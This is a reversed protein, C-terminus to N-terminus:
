DLHAEDLAQHQKELLRLAELEMRWDTFEPPEVLELAHLRREFEASSMDYTEEFATLRARTRAIGMALIKKEHDLASTVLPKLLGRDETKITLHEAM